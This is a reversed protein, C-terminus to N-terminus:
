HSSAIAFLNGAAVAFAHLTFFGIGTFIGFGDSCWCLVGFGGPAAEGWFSLAHDELLVLAALVDGIKFGAFDATASEIEVDVVDSWFVGPTGISRAIESHKAASVIQVAFSPTPLSVIGAPIPSIMM